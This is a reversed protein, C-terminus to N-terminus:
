TSDEPHRVNRAPAEEGCHLAGRGRKSEGEVAKPQGIEGESFDAAMEEDSEAKSNSKEDNRVSSVDMVIGDNEVAVEKSVSSVTTNQGEVSMM